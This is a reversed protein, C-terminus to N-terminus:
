WIEFGDCNELFDAFEALMEIDPMGDDSKQPMGFMSAMAECMGTDKKINSEPPPELIPKGLLEKLIAALRHSNEADLGVGDNFYGRHAIEEDMLQHQMAVNAVYKWINPWTWISSRFYGSDNKGYVDMGM